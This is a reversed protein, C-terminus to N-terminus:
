CGRCISKVTKDIQKNEADVAQDVSRDGGSGMGVTGGSSQATGLSNTGPPPAMGSPSGAGATGTTM